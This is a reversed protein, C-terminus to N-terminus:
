RLPKEPLSLVFEVAQSLLEGRVADDAYADANCRVWGSMTRGGMVAPAVGRRGLAAADRGKGLRVLLSGQRAGCLLHGCLLWAWGGFMAREALGHVSRLDDRILEELGEDRAM